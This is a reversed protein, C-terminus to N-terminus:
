WYDAGPDRYADASGPVINVAATYKAFNGEDLADRIETMMIGYSKENTM